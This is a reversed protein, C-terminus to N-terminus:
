CIIDRDLNNEVYQAMITKGGTFEKGECSRYADTANNKGSAVWNPLGNQWNGTIRHWMGPVSYIGIATDIKNLEKNYATIADIEGQISNINESQTKSWSNATEVDVWWVPSYVEQANAQEVAYKGAAFGYNYAYCNVDGEACQKRFNKYEQVKEYGPFGSNVYLSPNKFKNVEDKFCPNLTMNRGGNVGVIGFAADAPIEATCNNPPWSIDVGIRGKLANPISPHISQVGAKNITEPIPIVINIPTAVTEARIPKSVPDDQSVPVQQPAKKDGPKLNSTSTPLEIAEGDVCALVQLGCAEATLQMKKDTDREFYAMSSAALTSTLGLAVIAKALKKVIFSDACIESYKSELGFLIEQGSRPPYGLKMIAM